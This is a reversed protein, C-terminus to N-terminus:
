RLWILVESCASPQSSTSASSMAPMVGASILIATVLSAGRLASNASRSATVIRSMLDAILSSVSPMFFGMRSMCFLSLSFIATCSAPMGDQGPDDRIVPERVAGDDPVRPVPLAEAM